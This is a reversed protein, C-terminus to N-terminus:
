VGVEATVQAAATPNKAWQAMTPVRVLAQLIILKKKINNVM